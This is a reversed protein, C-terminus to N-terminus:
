ITKEMTWGGHIAYLGVECGDDMLNKENYSAIVECGDDLRVLYQSDGLYRVVIGIVDYEATQTNYTKEEGNFGSKEKSITQTDYGTM